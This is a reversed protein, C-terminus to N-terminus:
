NVLQALFILLSVFDLSHFVINLFFESALAHVFLEIILM